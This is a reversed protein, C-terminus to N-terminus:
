IYVRTKVVPEKNLFDAVQLFAYSLKNPKLELHLCCTGSLSCALELLSYNEASESAEENKEDPFYAAMQEALHTKLLEDAFPKGDIWVDAWPLTDNIAETLCKDRFLHFYYEFRNSKGDDGSYLIEPFSEAANDSVLLAIHYDGTGPIADIEIYLFLPRKTLLKIEDVSTRMQWVKYQDSKFFATGALHQRSSHSLRNKRPINVKFSKGTLIVTLRNVEQWYATGTAKDYIVLIVGIAHNLWYDLHKKAGRFVFHDDSAEKFYSAGSKIQVGLLKGTPVVGKPYWYDTVEVFADVGFDNVPQERFIWKL